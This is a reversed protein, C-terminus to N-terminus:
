HLTHHEQEAQAIVQGIMRLVEGEGNIYDVLDAIEVYGPRPRAAPATDMRALLYDSMIEALKIQVLVSCAYIPLLPDDQGLVSEPAEDAPEEAALMQVFIERLGTLAQISEPSLPAPDAIIVEKHARAVIDTREAAQLMATLHDQIVSLDLAERASQTDLMMKTADTIGNYLRYSERTQADLGAQTEPIFDHQTLVARDNTAMATDINAIILSAYAKAVDLVHHQSQVLLDYIRRNNM